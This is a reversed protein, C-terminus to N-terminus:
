EGGLLIVAAEYGDKYKDAETTDQVVQRIIDTQELIEDYVDASIMRSECAWGPDEVGEM